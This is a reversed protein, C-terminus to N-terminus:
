FESLDDVRLREAEWREYEAEIHISRSSFFPIFGLIGDRPSFTTIISLNKLPIKGPNLRSFEKKIDLKRRGQFASLMKKTLIFNKQFDEYSGLSTEEARIIQERIDKKGFKTEVFYNKGDIIM